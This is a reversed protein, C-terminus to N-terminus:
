KGKVSDIEIEVAKRMKSIRNEFIGKFTWKLAQWMTADKKYLNKKKVAYYVGYASALPLGLIYRTTNGRNVFFRKDYGKFWTSCDQAVSAIECPVYYIKLGAKLCDTLFKLEEEAGNDTGAGLLEDFFIGKKLISERKFSIQWSSVKFVDVFGLRKVKNEFSPTRNTMKFIVVDAGKIKEYANIIKRDYNKEFVEDDDCLLCIDADSKLIAMNRSKTLGRDTTSYMVARGNETEMECFDENDCQNIVVANGTIKSKKIIDMDQMHMCSLLVDLTMKM